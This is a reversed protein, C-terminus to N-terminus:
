GDKGQLIMKECLAKRDQADYAGTTATSQVLQQNTPGVM